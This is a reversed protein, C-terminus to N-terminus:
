LKGINIYSNAHSCLIPKNSCVAVSLKDAELSRVRRILSEKEQTSDHLQRSHTHRQDDLENKLRAKDSKLKNNYAKLRGNEPDLHRPTSEM